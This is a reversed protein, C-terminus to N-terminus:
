GAAPRRAQFNISSSGGPVPRSAQHRHGGGAPAMTMAAVVSDPMRYVKAELWSMVKDDSLRIYREGHTEKVDCIRNIRANKAEAVRNIAPFSEDCVSDALVGFRGAHEASQCGLTFIVSELLQLAVKNRAKDLYHLM